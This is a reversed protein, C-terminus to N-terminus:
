DISEAEHERGTATSGSWSAANSSAHSEGSRPSRNTRQLRLRGLVVHANTGGIGFSSVAAVRGRWEGASEVLRFPTRGWDILPSPQAAHLSPVLRQHFLMLATKIFGPVGAATNMHGINGKVSGLHVTRETELAETLAQVELPDGLKTGTGHAEVYDLDGGTVGADAHADRIVEVQGQFSPASFGAKRAGDNNTAGGLVTSYVRQGREQAADLRTLVILGAGDANVTGNAGEAFPRCVGDPSWIMGDVKRVAADPSFSAGGCLVYDCLGLRLMQMARVIAVLGSSCATQVVESPGHLNLRYSITTALYDKDTGIELAFYDEPREVRLEELDVALVDDAYHPL